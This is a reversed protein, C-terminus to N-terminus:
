ELEKLEARTINIENQIAQNYGINESLNGYNMMGTPILGKKLRDIEKLLYAKHSEKIFSKVNSKAQEATINQPVKTIPFKDDFKNLTEHIHNM